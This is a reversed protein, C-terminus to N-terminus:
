WIIVIAFELIVHGHLNYLKFLFVLWLISMNKCTTVNEILPGCSYFCFTVDCLIVKFKFLLNIVRSEVVHLCQRNLYFRNPHSVSCYNSLMGLVCGVLSQNGVGCLGKLM